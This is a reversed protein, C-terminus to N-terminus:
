LRVFVVLFKWSPFRGLSALRTAMYIRCQDDLASMHSHLKKGPNPRWHVLARDHNVILPHFPLALPKWLGCFFYNAHPSIPWWPHWACLFGFWGFVVRWAPSDCKGCGSTHRGWTSVCSLAFVVPGSGLVFLCFDSLHWSGLSEYVVRDLFVGLLAGACEITPTFYIWALLSLQVEIM